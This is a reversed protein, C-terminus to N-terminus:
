RIFPKKTMSRGSYVVLSLNIGATLERGTADWAKMGSYKLIEEKGKSFIVTQGHLAPILDGSIDFGIKLNGTGDPRSIMTVGHEIGEAGNSYWETYGERSINIQRGNGSIVGTSAPTNLETRGFSALLVTFSGNQHFFEVRNDPTIKLGIKQYYNNAAWRGTSNDCTFSYLTETISKELNTDSNTYSINTFGPNPDPQSSTRMGSKFTENQIGQNQHVNPIKQSSVYPFINECPTSIYSQRENDSYPGTISASASLHHNEAGSAILSLSILSLIIVAKFIYHWIM